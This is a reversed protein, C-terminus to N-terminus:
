GQSRGRDVKDQHPVCWCRASSYCHNGKEFFSHPDCQLSSCRSSEERTLPVVLLYNCHAKCSLADVIVNVKRPHYHVELDYDKILEMWRRQCMNLDPQTFIYKLSKHDTFIHIVNRLLYYRWTRLALVVTALELDHTRYHEEHHRLQRSSYAIVRGEQKLVCGLGTGSVDCYADFSKTIDPQALVLSTTLLKKLTQFVEDRGANWMFKGGKKLLDTIPKTTKSFNPIFRRYYGALGLFSRVQHLSKPPKWNLVDRVKGPDVFIGEESLVHGLFPVEGLWFECKSSNLMTNIIEYDSFCLTFIDRMSKLM